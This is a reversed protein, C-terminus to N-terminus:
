LDQVITAQRTQRTRNEWVRLTIQIAKLGRNPYGAVGFKTTDYIVNPLNGPSFNTDALINNAPDALQMVQMEFSIVNPLVLTAASLIRPDATNFAALDLIVRNGLAADAPSFFTLNAGGPNCSMGAFTTIGAATINAANVNTADPVMVFQARYLSYTPTGLISAPNNPEETSGTRILYYVVEAWQSSYFAQNQPQGPLPPYATTLTATPLASLPNLNYATQKSFFANLLPSPSTSPVSNDVLSTGFFSEQRNGKRKVTMYLMHDTARYSPLGSADFGENFYPAGATNLLPTTRRLAVFGAEPLQATIQSGGLTTQDSPRRKGTLHDQRLDDRLMVQATRLDQQMDGIGKMGSFADLALVFAQSLIVMIFLALAMAVMLEILTFGARSRARM